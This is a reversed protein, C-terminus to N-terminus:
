PIWIRSDIRNLKRTVWKSIGTGSSWWSFRPLLMAAQAQPSTEPLFAYVATNGVTKGHSPWFSPPFFWSPFVMESRRLRACGPEDWLYLRRGTSFAFAFRLDTSDQLVRFVDSFVCSWDDEIRWVRCFIHSMTDHPKQSWWSAACNRAFSRWPTWREEAAAIHPWATPQTQSRYSVIWVNQAKEGRERERARALVSQCVQRNRAECSRSQLAEGVIVCAVCFLPLDSSRGCRKKIGETAFTSKCSNM